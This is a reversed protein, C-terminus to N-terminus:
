SVVWVAMNETSRIVKQHFRGLIYEEFFGVVEGQGVVVTGYNGGMAAEIVIPVPNGKLTLFQRSIREPAVGADRLRQEAEDMTPRFRNRRYALWDMERETPQLWAPSVRFMGPLRLVHCLIIEEIREGTLMGVMGVSRMSEFSEDLAIFVRTSDLGTGGVIILPIHRIRRVLKDSLSGVVVDKWRSTGSRGVVVASYDQYSEQVIDRLIDIKQPQMKLHIADPEFGADKLVKAAKEKFEGMVLQHNALWGQVNNMKTKYYPNRDMDWYVEPYETGVHFLVIETRKRQVIGSIYRVAELAQDSGDVAVLIRQSFTKETM